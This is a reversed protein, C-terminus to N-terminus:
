AKAHFLEAEENLPVVQSVWLEPRHLAAAAAAILTAPSPSDIQTDAVDVDPLMKSVAGRLRGAAALSGRGAAVQGVLDEFRGFRAEQVRGNEFLGLYAMGDSAPIATLVPREFQRQAQVGALEFFNMPLMRKGLAFSLANAFAVGARIAGLGGPGVNVAIGDIDAVQIQLEALARDLILSLDRAARDRYLPASDFIIKGDRGLAMAYESSSTEIGLLLSM